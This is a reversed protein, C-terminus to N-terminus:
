YIASFSNNRCLYSLLSLSYRLVLCRAVLLLASEIQCHDFLLPIGRVCSDKVVFPKHHPAVVLIDPWPVELDSIQYQLFNLDRLMHSFEVRSPFSGEFNNFDLLWPSIFKLVKFAFVQRSGPIDM